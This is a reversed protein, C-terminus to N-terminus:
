PTVIGFRPGVFAPGASINVGSTVPAVPVYPPAYTAASGKGIIGTLKVENKWRNFSTDVWTALRWMAADASKGRGRLTTAPLSALLARALAAAQLTTEGASTGQSLAPTVAARTPPASAGPVARFRPYAEPIQMQFGAAWANWSVALVNAIRTATDSSQQSGSQIEVMRAEINIDSVLSGPTLFATAGSVRGGQVRARGIWENVAIRFAEQSASAVANWDPAQPERSLQSQLAASETAALATSAGVQGVFTRRRLSKRVPSVKEKDEESM